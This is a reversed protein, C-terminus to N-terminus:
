ISMPQVPWLMLWRRAVQTDDWTKVVDPRSRLILHCHNSLISYGLLDIGLYAALHEMRREIWQKRHDYNRGTLQDQGMLFCRRVARNVVHVIAVEDPSFQEVRALRGM